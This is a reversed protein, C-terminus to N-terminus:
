TRPETPLRVGAVHRGLAELQAAADEYAKRDMAVTVRAVETRVHNRFEVFAGLLGYYSARIKESESRVTQLEARTETLLQRWQDNASAEAEAEAKILAPKRNLYAIVIGGGGGAGLLAAALPVIFPPLDM